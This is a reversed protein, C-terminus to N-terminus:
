HRTKENKNLESLQKEHELKKLEQRFYGTKLKEREIKEELLNIIKDKSFSLQELIEAVYILNAVSMLYMDILTDKNLKQLYEESLNKEIKNVIEDSIKM